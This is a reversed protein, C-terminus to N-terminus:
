AMRRLGDRARRADRLRQEYTAGLVLLLLGAAALPLWRPLVDLVQVLLPALEHCAVLLLTGAGLVLPAQLLRRAGFVTLALAFAGLLLPRLWQPDTWTALLSPLLATGLGPGYTTWSPTSPLRRRHLHGITLAAVAVSATYPEPAAVDALLLRVWSSLILLATAALGAPRRRDPRLAAVGLALVGAVALLLSLATPHGATLLLAVPALAYGTLEVALGVPGGRRAAVPVSLAAVALVAFAYQYPALGAAAGATVAVVALSLVGVVAPVPAWPAPLSAALLAALVALVSWVAITTPRDAGSWLVAAVTTPALLALAAAPEAPRRVLAATAGVVLLVAWVAGTRLPLHLLAPLLVALPGGVALAAGLLQRARARHGTRACRAAAAGLVAVLLWPLAFPAPTLQWDRHADDLGFWTSGWQAAPGFYASLLAPLFSLQALALVAGAVGLLGLWASRRRPEAATLAVVGALALLAGPVAYGAPVWDAPLAFRLSGGLGTLLAAGALAAAVGRPEAARLPVPLTAAPLLAAGFGLAALLALPLWTPWAAAFTTADLLWGGALLGGLLAWTAGTATLLLATTRTALVLDLLATVLGATAIAVPGGDIAVAVLLCPLQLLLLAVPLPGRLRVAAGYAAAGVATLATAGAWYAAGDIRDLGGLGVARAAYWDLLVLSLGLAASTEATATLGRRRLPVPALLACATVATLILAKAGLGLQGWSVVTFVLAAIAVLLGGLALLVTQASPGSVEQAYLTQPAYPAYPAYPPPDPQDQRARLGALLHDRHLLLSRRQADLGALALTVQWLAAADQGLLPLGCQPCRAVPAPGLSSSCGPCAPSGTTM